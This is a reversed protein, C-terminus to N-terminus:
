YHVKGCDCTQNTKFLKWFIRIIKYIFGMFGSEHCICSCVSESPKESELIKGCNDCVGDNNEDDHGTAKIERSITYSCRTCKATESGATECLPYVTVQYAGLNHGLAVTESDTYSDGCATCEHKTYGKTTCTPAVVKSKYNHSTKETVTQEVIVAGCVSCHSGETLGTATCTASVAKDTVATHSALAITTNKNRTEKCLTCEEHKLGTEKCTAEKDVVWQWNHSCSKVTFTVANSSTQYYLYKTNRAMVTATYTGDDLDLNCSLTDGSLVKKAYVDGSANNGKWVRLIYTRDDLKKDKLPSESWSFATTTSNPKVTLTSASPAEPKKYPESESGYIYLIYKQADTNNYQWIEINTGASTAGGTSDLVTNGCATRICYANGDLSYAIVWEQAKTGNEWCTQVNNGNTVDFNNLDLMTGNYANKFKYRGESTREVHWIQKPDYDSNGNTAIQVNYDETGELHKWSKKLIIYAYFDSGVDSLGVRSVLMNWTESNVIGDANLGVASQFNKVQEKTDSTFRGNVEGCYFGLYNLSTQVFSVRTESDDVSGVDLHGSYSPYTTPKSFDWNITHSVIYNKPEAFIYSSIPYQHSCVCDGSNGEISYFDSGETYWVLGVHTRSKTIFLDGPQPTYGSYHITFASNDFYNPVGSIKPIIDTSIGAQNACWSVFMACWPENPLGYWNGYKTDNNYGETYGLQTKAVGIIDNRQNGTNTYTNEYAANAQIVLDGIPLVGFLMVTALLFSIVKKGM